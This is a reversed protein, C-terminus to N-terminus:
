RKVRSLLAKGISAEVRDWIFYKTGDYGITDGIEKQVEWIETQTAKLRRQQKAEKGQLERLEEALIVVKRLTEDNIEIIEDM